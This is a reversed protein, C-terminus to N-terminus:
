FYLKVGIQVVRMNQAANPEGFYTGLPSVSGAPRLNNTAVLGTFNSFIASGTQGAGNTINTTLNYGSIQPHNPANFAELRLQIYRKGEAGGLPINKFVSLDQNVIWPNRLYMRPYPGIDNLGPVELASMNITSGTQPDGDLLFRMQQGSLNGSTVTGLLRTGADVGSITLGVDTPMGSALTTVGSLVWHDLIGRALANGRFIKSGRPLDWIFNGVLYHTRDFAAIQYDWSPNVLRTFTGDDGITTMTKSWTYAIGFTLGESFRRNVAVQLSNYKSSADFEYWTIDSYGQYPRLFDTGLIDAGSFSLGANSYLAPLGPETAPIVGGAFKTPDQAAASFTIGYPPTNLNTKRPLHDSKNGVYAVDIVIGKGIDRQVGISYNYMIPFTMNEDVGTISLPSLIGGGGPTINQLYGYQLTPTYVFPPNSAGFGTVGSEYRDRTIGFGGRVVTKHSGTVDWAFGLRPQPYIKPPTVGGAPYGQSTLVMGNTLSGAGPVLKGVYYGPMTNALTPTGTIAPDIARYTAQGSKCTSVGVCVPRFLREADSTSFAAPDFYAADGSTNYVPQYWSFRIGLDLTLRRTAKWTDQLYWSIDHYLYNQLPKSSAQTYSNYVGLLANAWPDGTNLPNSSNSSFDLDSQVHTQNNSANSASQFYYGVKFVHSGAAKSLNDMVQWILFRQNFPGFMSTTAESSVSAIGGFSLSPIMGVPDANPYLLPTDIGATSRLAADGNPAITVGGRGIGFIFENVWTPGFNKTLSISPISGPGNMRSTVALPWNWSATTTGYAFQQDDHNYVWRVSLRTSSSIQYDGRLITENRPYSSPVQSTYNYGFGGATTNPSPLFNLIAEGPAYIRASPIINGPFATGTTPDIITIAKGTGDVSASFNGTREAATPVLINNSSAQPVLQSYYEQSIFFFLKNKGNIVHPIYIPGGLNWGYDNYRYLPRPFGDASGGRIDNFYSDANMSDHRRLYLFGGHLENTGGRTTLAIVGGGSRGYEAQYNSTLVKVEEVADPNISVLAGTNNGLNLNTIGDLTYEHELSRTGNVQFSGTINTVTSAANAVLASVNIGPIFKMLDVINQGNMGIDRLDRNTLLDSREGSEAQIQMTGANAEVTVTDSISGVALIVDGIGIKSALPLIIDKNESKKFGKAEAEVTYTGAPLDLFVFGGEAGTTVTQHLGTNQEIATVTAGPVVAGAPDKVTGTISSSNQAFVSCSLAALVILAGWVRRMNRMM